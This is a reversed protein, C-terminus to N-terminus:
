DSLITVKLSKHLTNIKLENGLQVTEGDIHTMVNEGRISIDKGKFTEVYKSKHLTKTFLRIGVFLSMVLPFRHMITINLLGDDIIAEPAIHANNGFQTSNACSILFAKKEYTKGDIELWYHREKYTFFEKITIKIYSLLGRKGYSDFRNAVHADFGVGCINAFTANNIKASDITIIKCNNLLQIAKKINIPIKLFRALGNGSGKPIIAMATNSNILGKSVENITGDGGVAVVIEYKNAANESIEIAHKAAKTYVIEYNYLDKNLYKKIAKEVSKKKGSGSIPNIIFLIKKTM